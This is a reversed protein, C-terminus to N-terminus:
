SIIEISVVTFMLGINCYRRTIRDYWFGKQWETPPSLTVRVTFPLIFLHRLRTLKDYLM